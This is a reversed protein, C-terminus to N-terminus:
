PEPKKLPNQSMSVWFESCTDAEGNMCGRYAGRRHVGLM